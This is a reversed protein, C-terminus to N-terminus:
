DDADKADESKEPDLEFGLVRSLDVKWVFGNEKCMEAVKNIKEEYYLTTKRLEDEFESQIRELKAELEASKISDAILSKYEVNTIVSVGVRIGAEAM